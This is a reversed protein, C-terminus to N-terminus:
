MELFIDIVRDILLETLIDSVRYPLPQKVILRDGYRAGFVFISMLSPLSTFNVFILVKNIKGDRGTLSSPIRKQASAFWSM